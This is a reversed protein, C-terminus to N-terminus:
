RKHCKVLLFKWGWKSHFWVCYLLFQSMNMAQGSEQLEIFLEYLRGKTNVDWIIPVAKLNFLFVHRLSQLRQSISYAKYTMCILSICNKYSRIFRMDTSVIRDMQSIDYTKTWIGYKTCPRSSFLFMFVHFHGPSWFM